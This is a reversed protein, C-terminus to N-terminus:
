RTVALPTAGLPAGHWELLQAVVEPMREYGRVVDLTYVPVARAVTVARDFSVASEEGGLVAGGKLQAVIALAAPVPASLTRRVASGDDLSAAPRLLYIADLPVQEIMVQDAPLEELIHKGGPARSSRVDDGLLREASDEWLRVSHVGPGVLVPPGPHVPLADDTLLRAGARALSLALTSKGHLKPALFTIGGRELAVASGHLCLVGAAHLATPLIRGLIAMRVFEVNYGEGPLWRIQDGAASIDYSGNEDSYVIRFGDAHRFITATRIGLLDHVGLLREDTMTELADVVRLTWTPARGTVPRLEPFSVETRLCGGFVAYDPM